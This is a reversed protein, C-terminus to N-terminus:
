QEENHLQPAIIRNFHFYKKNEKEKENIKCSYGNFSGDEQLNPGSKELHPLLEWSKTLKCM